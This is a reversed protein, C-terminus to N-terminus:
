IFNVMANSDDDDDDDQPLHRRSGSNGLPSRGAGCTIPRNIRPDRTKKQGVRGSKAVSGGGGQTRM